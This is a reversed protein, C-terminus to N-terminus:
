LSRLTTRSMSQRFTKRPKEARASPGTDGTRREVVPRARFLDSLDHSREGDDAERRAAEPRRSTERAFEECL